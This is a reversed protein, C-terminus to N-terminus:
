VVGSSMCVIRIGVACMAPNSTQSIVTHKLHERLLYATVPLRVRLVLAVGNKVMGPM